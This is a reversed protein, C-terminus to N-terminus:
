GVPPRVGQWLYQWLREGPTAFTQNSVQYMAPNLSDAWIKCNRPEHEESPPLSPKAAAQAGSSIGSQQSSTRCSVVFVILILARRPFSPM